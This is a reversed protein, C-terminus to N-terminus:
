TGRWMPNSLWKCSTWMSCHCITPMGPYFHLISHCKNDLCVCFQLQSLPEILQVVTKNFSCLYKTGFPIFFIVCCSVENNIILDSLITMISFYSTILTRPFYKLHTFLSNICFRNSLLFIRLLINIGLWKNLTGSLIECEYFVVPLPSWYEWWCWKVLPRYVHLM